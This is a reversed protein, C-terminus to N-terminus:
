EWPGSADEQWWSYMYEGPRYCTVWVRDCQVCRMAVSLVGDDGIWHKHLRRHDSAKCRPPDDIDHRPAHAAMLEDSM